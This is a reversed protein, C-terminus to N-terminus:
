AIMPDFAPEFGSSRVHEIEGRGAGDSSTLQVLEDLDRRPEVRAPPRGLGPALAPRHAFQARM